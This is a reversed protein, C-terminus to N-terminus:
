KSSIPDWPAPNAGMAGSEQGRHKVMLRSGRQGAAYTWVWRSAAHKETLHM